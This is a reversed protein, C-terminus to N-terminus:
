LNRVNTAGSLKWIGYCITGTGLVAYLTGWGLARMALSSGSDLLHVNSILGKELLKQEEKKAALMTKTFGAGAAVGAVTAM